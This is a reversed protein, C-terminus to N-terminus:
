APIGYINIAGNDTSSFVAQGPNIVIYNPYDTINFYPNIGEYVTNRALTGGYSWQYMVKNLAVIDIYASSARYTGTEIYSSTAYFILDSNYANTNAFIKCSTGASAQINSFRIYLKRYKKQFDVRFSSVEETGVSVTEILEWVDGGGGSGGSDDDTDIWLLSTDSPAEPQAVFCKEGSGSGGGGSGGEPINITLASSGDYTGTAAGTFTLANPNKLSSPITISNAKNLANQANDRATQDNFSFTDSGITLTRMEINAM